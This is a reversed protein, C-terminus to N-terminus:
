ARGPGDTESPDIDAEDPMGYLTHLRERTEREEREQEGDGEREREGDEEREREGDDERERAHGDERARAERESPELALDERTGQASEGASTEHGAATARGEPPDVSGGDLPSPLPEDPEDELMEPLTPVSPAPEDPASTDGADPASSLNDSTVKTDSRGQDGAPAAAAVADVTDQDAEDAGQDAVDTGQDAEDAGQDAVDTGQDAEDAGQDAVDTGQSSEHAEEVPRFMPIPATVDAPSVRPAPEDRSADDTTAAGNAEHLEEDRAPGQDHAHDREPHAPELHGGDAPPEVVFAPEDDEEPVPPVPATSLSEAGQVSAFQQEPASQHEDVSQGDASPQGEAPQQDELPHEGDVPQAGEVLHEQAPQTTVPPALATRPVLSDDNATLRDLKRLQDARGRVFAQDGAGMGAVLGTLLRMESALRARNLLYGDPRQSRAMSYSELVADVARPHSKEVLRAFDEAPDAVQAREWGTLGVVRGSSADDDSFAVLFSSGDLSGHTPVTTFQWMPAADLAQEWRALLGNPVHGTEAARDLETLKRARYEAADFVPVAHEEFLERPMNHIAAVARGVASALGAGQPLHRLSLALGEVYPYVAARGDPGLDAYGAAAPVRFPLHKGLQRVLDDNRELEAGAAASLPSRVVWMRGTVDEVLASQHLPNEEATRVAAVSVPRMGPVAATALAALALDSRIM